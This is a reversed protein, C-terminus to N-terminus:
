SASVTCFLKSLVDDEDHSNNGHVFPTRGLVSSETNTTTTSKGDAGGNSDYGGGVDDGHLM